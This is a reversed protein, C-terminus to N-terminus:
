WKCSVGGKSCVICDRGAIYRYGCENEDQASSSAKGCSNLNILLILIFFINMFGRQLTIRREKNSM